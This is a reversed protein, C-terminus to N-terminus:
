GPWLGGCLSLFSLILNSPFDSSGRAGLGIVEELRGKERAVSVESAPLTWPALVREVFVASFAEGERMSGGNSALPRALVVGDM